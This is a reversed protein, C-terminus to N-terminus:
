EIISFEGRKIKDLVSSLNKIMYNFCKSCIRSRSIPIKPVGPYKREAVLITGDGGYTIVFDPDKSITVGRKKVIRTIRSSDYPSEIWIRM